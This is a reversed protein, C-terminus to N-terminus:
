PKVDEVMKAKSLPADWTSTPAVGAPTPYDPHQSPREVAEHITAKVGSGDWLRGASRERRDTIHQFRVQLDHEAKRKSSV